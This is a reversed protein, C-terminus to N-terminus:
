DNYELILVLCHPRYELGQKGKKGINRTRVYEKWTHCYKIKGKRDAQRVPPLAISKGLNIVTSPRVPLSSPVPQTLGRLQGKRRHDTVWKSLAVSALAQIRVSRPSNTAAANTTRISPISTSGPGRADGGGRWIFGLVFSAKQWM